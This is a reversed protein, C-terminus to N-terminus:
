FEQTEEKHTPAKSHRAESHRPYIFRIFRSSKPKYLMSKKKKKTCDLWLKSPTAVQPQSYPFLLHETFLYVFQLASRTTAWHSQEQGIHFESLKKLYSMGLTICSLVSNRRSVIIGEIGVAKYYIPCCLCNHLFSNSLNSFLLFM